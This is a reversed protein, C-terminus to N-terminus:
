HCGATPLWNLGGLITLKEYNCCNEKNTVHYSKQRNSSSQRSPFANSMMLSIYICDMNQIYTCYTTETERGVGKELGESLRCLIDALAYPLKYHYIFPELYICTEQM